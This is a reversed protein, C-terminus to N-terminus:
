IAESCGRDKKQFMATVALTVTRSASKGQVVDTNIFVVIHAPRSLQWARCMKALHGTHWEM